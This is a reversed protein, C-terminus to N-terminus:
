AHRCAHSARQRPLKALGRSCTRRFRIPVPAGPRAASGPSDCFPAHLPPRLPAAARARGGAEM